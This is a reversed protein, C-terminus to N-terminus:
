QKRLETLLQRAESKLDEDESIEIAKKIYAIGNQRDGSQFLAAGLLMHSEADTEDAQVAFNLIPIAEPFKGLGLLAKGLQQHALEYEEDLELVRSLVIEAEEFNSLSNMAFGSYYYVDPDEPFFEVIANFGNIGAEYNGAEVDVIALGKLAPPSHPVKKLVSLYDQRAKDLDGVYDNAEGRLLLYDANGPDNRLANSYSAVSDEYEEELFAIIGKGCHAESCANDLKLAEEFDGRASDIDGKSLWCKGRLAFLDANKKEKKLAMTVLELSVDPRDADLHRQAAFTLDEVSSPNVCRLAEGLYAALSQLEVKLSVLRADTRAGEVVAVVRGEDDVVPGGSNGQNTAMDSELINAEYGSALIGRNIQRVHGTSYIWLSQSGAASGAISHINQGPTASSEALELEPNESSIKEIQVIALDCTPDSDVVRGAVGRGPVISRAPDTVLQGDVFEPFYVKCDTFGEIVHHNTVLLRQKSDLVWGTGSVTSGDAAECLILAVSKIVRNYHPNSPPKISTGAQGNTPASAKIKKLRDALKSSNGTDQAFAFSSTLLTSALTGVVARLLTTRSFAFM